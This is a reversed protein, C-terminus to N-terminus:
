PFAFNFFAIWNAWWILLSLFVPSGRLAEPQHPQWLTCDWVWDLPLPSVSLTRGPVKFRISVWGGLGM